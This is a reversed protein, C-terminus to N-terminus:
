WLSDIYSEGRVVSAQTHILKRTCDCPSQARRVYSMRQVPQRSLSGQSRCLLARGGLMDMERSIDSRWEQQVFVEWDPDKKRLLSGSAGM